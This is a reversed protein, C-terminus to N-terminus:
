YPYKMGPLEDLAGQLRATKQPDKEAKLAKQLRLQVIDKDGEICCLVWLSALRVKQDNNTSLNRILAPIAPAGIKCLASEAAAGNWEAEMEYLTGTVPPNANLTINAALEDVAETACLQGLFYAAYRKSSNQSQPSKLVGTLGRIIEQRQMTNESFLKGLYLDQSLPHGESPAKIADLIKQDISKAPPPPAPHPNLYKLLEDKRSVPQIDEPDYIGLWDTDIGPLHEQHLLWIHNTRIDGSIPFINKLSNMTDFLRVVDPACNTSGPVPGVKPDIGYHISITMSPKDVMGKLLDSLLLEVHYEHGGDKHEIRTLTKPDIRGVVILESRIVIEQDSYSKRYWAPATICFLTAIALVIIGTCRVRTRLVAAKSLIASRRIKM